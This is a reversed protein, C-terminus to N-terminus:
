GRKCSKYRHPPDRDRTEIKPCLIRRSANRRERRNEWKTFVELRLTEFHKRRSWSKKDDFREGRSEVYGHHADELTLRQANAQQQLEGICTNLSEM